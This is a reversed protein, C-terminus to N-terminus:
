HNGSGVPWRMAQGLEGVLSRLEPKDPPLLEADRYDCRGSDPENRKIRRAINAEVATQRRGPPATAQPKSQSNRDVWSREISIWNRLVMTDAAEGPTLGSDNIKAILLRASHGNLKGGKKRRVDILAQVREADLISSLESQFDAMDQRSTKKKESSGSLNNTQLNDEVHARPTVSQTVNSTANNTVSEAKRKERFRAQREANASRTKAPNDADISAVIRLLDDGEVGADMLLRLTEASVPM